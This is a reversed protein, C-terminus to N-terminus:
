KIRKRLEDLSSRVEAMNHDDQNAHLKLEERLERVAERIADTIGGNLKLKIEKAAAKAEAAADAAARANKAATETGVKTLATNYDIKKAIARLWLSFATLVAVLSPGIIGLFAEWTM